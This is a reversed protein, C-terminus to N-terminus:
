WAAADERAIMEELALWWAERATRFRTALYVTFPVGHKSLVPYAKIIDKYGGDFTLSVFRSANPLKVARRCGEDITFFITTGAGSRM